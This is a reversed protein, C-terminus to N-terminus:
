SENSHCEDIVWDKMKEFFISGAHEPRQHFWGVIAMGRILLFNRLIDVDQAALPRVRRYGDLLADCIDDFDTANRDDILISAIDYMHWGYASDDFDIIALNGDSYVINDPNMDAHILSFNEPRAGYTSLTERLQDRTEVLLKKEDGTLDAHEWFRGWRPMEGLLGDLDLRSRRFNPPEKWSTSQNHTAAALEGIRGFIGAREEKDSNTKLHDDLPTGEIWRTMGAYRQEGTAPIDILVFHDGQNTLVSEPTPIHAENLARTWERESVLEELSNYDPRHLRLVYDTDSDEATVRYTVNESQAVPEVDKPVVSFSELAKLATPKYRSDVHARDM